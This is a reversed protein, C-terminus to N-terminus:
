GSDTPHSRADRGSHPPIANTADYNDAQRRKTDSHFASKRQGDLLRRWDVSNRSGAHDNKVQPALVIMAELAPKVRALVELTLDPALVNGARQAAVRVDHPQRMSRVELRAALLARGAISRSAIRLLVGIYPSFHECSQYFVDDIVGIVHARRERLFGALNMITFRGLAM